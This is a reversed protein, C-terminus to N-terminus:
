RECAAVQFFGSFHAGGPEVRIIGFSAINMVPPQDALADIFCTAERHFIYLIHIFYTNILTHLQM